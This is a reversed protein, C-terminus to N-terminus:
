SPNSQTARIQSHNKVIIHVKKKFRPYVRTKFDSWGNDHDKIGCVVIFTRNKYEKWYESLQYEIRSRDGIDFNYKLEIPFKERGKSVEIDVKNAGRQFAIHERGFKTYLLEGLEREYEKENKHIGIQWQDIVRKLNRESIKQIGEKSQSKTSEVQLQLKKFSVRDFIERRIDDTDDDSDFKIHYQIAIQKVLKAPIKKVLEKKKEETDSTFYWGM